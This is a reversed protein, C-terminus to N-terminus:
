FVRVNTLDSLENYAYFFIYNDILNPQYKYFKFLRVIELTRYDLLMEVGFLGFEELNQKLNKKRNESIIM